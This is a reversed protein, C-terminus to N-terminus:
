ENSLFEACHAALRRRARGYKTLRNYKSCSSHYKSVESENNYTPVPYGLEGSFEPWSRFAPFLDVNGIYPQFCLGVNPNVPKGGKAIKRLADIAKKKENISQEENSLFEACHAALRRRARGYKTLRNFKFINSTYKDVPTGRGFSPIPFSVSGSYDPWAKFAERLDMFWLDPQECLGKLPNKPIGGNAIRRLEDIAKKNKM